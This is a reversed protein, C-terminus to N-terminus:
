AARRTKSDNAPMLGAWPNCQLTTGSIGRRYKTVTTPSIGHRSAVVRSSDNSHMIDAIAEDSIQRKAASIKARRIQQGSESAMAVAGMRRYHNAPNHWATHEPNVCTKEDCTPVYYGGKRTEGQTLETFVRRVAQFKGAHSVMPTGNGFYGQWIWCEGEEVCRAKLTEMTYTTKQKM